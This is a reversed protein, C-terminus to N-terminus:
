ELLDAAPLVIRADGIRRTAGVRDLHELIQITLNRGVGSRDRFNIVTVTGQPSEDALERAIRALRAVTEPLFFRNDAIKAVRGLREARHLFREVAEPTLAVADAIERVRPSRLGGHELLPRVRAWMKEDANTLRPRHECLRWRGGERVARGAAALQALAADLVPEPAAGRLQALLAPRPPGLMDPQVRHWAALAEGVTEALAALRDADVAFPAREPGVRLFADENGALTTLEPPALNRLLAFRALDVVGAVALMRRLATAPDATSMAALLDLRMPLRRGRRPALPDVVRGGALTMRAAHDRLV